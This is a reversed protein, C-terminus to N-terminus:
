ACMFSLFLSWVTLSFFFFFMELFRFNEEMETHFQLNRPLDRFLLCLIHTSTNAYAWKCVFESHTNTHM